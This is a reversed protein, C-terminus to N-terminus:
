PEQNQNQSYKFNKSIGIKRSLVDAQLMKGEIFFHKKLEKLTKEVGL